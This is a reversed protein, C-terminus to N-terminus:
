ARTSDVTAQAPAIVVPATGSILRSQCRRTAAKSIQARGREGPRLDPHHPCKIVEAAQDRPDDEDHDSGRLGSDVRRTRLQHHWPGNGQHSQAGVPTAGLCGVVVLVIPPVTLISRM